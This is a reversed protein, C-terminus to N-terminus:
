DSSCLKPAPGRVPRPRSSGKAACPELESKRATPAGVASNPETKPPEAALARPGAVLSAAVARQLPSNVADSSGRLKIRNNGKALCVAKDFAIDSQELLLVSSEVVFDARTRGPHKEMWRDIAGMLQENIYAGLLIKGNRSSM